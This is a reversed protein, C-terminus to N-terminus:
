NGENRENTHEERIKQAKERIERFFEANEPRVSEILRMPVLLVGETHFFVPEDKLAAMAMMQADDLGTAVSPLMLEGKFYGFLGLAPRWGEIMPDPTLRYMEDMTIRESM